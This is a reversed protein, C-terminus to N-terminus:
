LIPDDGTWLIRAVKAENEDLSWVNLRAGLLGDYEGQMHLNGGGNAVATMILNGGSYLGYLQGPTLDHCNLVYDLVEVNSYSVKGSAGYDPDGESVSTHNELDAHLTPGPKGGMGAFVMSAMALSCVIALSMRAFTRRRM